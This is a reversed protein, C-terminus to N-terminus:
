RKVLGFVVEFIQLFFSELVDETEKSDNRYKRYFRVLMQKKPMHFIHLDERDWPTEPSVLYINLSM